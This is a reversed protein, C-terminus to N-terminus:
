EESSAPKRLCNHERKAALSIFKCHCIKCEYKLVAASTVSRKRKAAALERARANICDKCSGLHGDLCNGSKVFEALPKTIGCKKCTKEGARVTKIAAKHAPLTPPPAAGAHSCDEDHMGIAGCESCAGEVMPMTEESKYQPDQAPKPDNISRLATIARKADEIYMELIAIVRGVPSGLELM